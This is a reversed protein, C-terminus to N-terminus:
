MHVAPTHLVQATGWGLERTYVLSGGPAQGRTSTACERNWLQGHAWLADATDHLCSTFDHRHNDKMVDWMEGHCRSANHAVTSTQIHQQCITTLFSLYIWACIFKVFFLPARYHVQWHNMNRPRDIPEIEPLSGRNSYRSLGLLLSLGGFTKLRCFSTVTPM